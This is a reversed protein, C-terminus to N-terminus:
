PSQGDMAPGGSSSGSSTDTLTVAVVGGRECSPAFWEAMWGSHRGNTASAPPSSVYVIMNAVGDVTIFRRLLSSPRASAFVEPEM